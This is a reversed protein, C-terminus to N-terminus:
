TAEESTGLSRAENQRVTIVSEAEEGDFGIMVAQQSENPEDLSDGAAGVEGLLRQRARSDAVANVVEDFNREPAVLEGPSLLFPISDRGPIGGEAIGGDQAGQVQAIQEGGFAVAAAAGAIGLAQGVIPITSFGNFINMASEATKITINAIAAAKGIGKLTSNNSRQLQQLEGTAKQTGKVEETRLFERLKAQTTGFKKEEALFLANAKQQRQLDALLAAEKMEAETQIQASLKEQNKEVFEDQQEETLAQFEENSALLAEQKAKRAEAEAAEFEAKKAQLEEQRRQEEDVLKETTNQAGEVAINGAQTVKEEVEEPDPSYADTFSKGISKIDAAADSVGTKLVNTIESISSKIGSVDAIFVSLLLKAFPKVLNTLAEFAVGFVRVIADFSNTVVGVLGPLLVLLLGIGTAGVLGRVSLATTRIFVAAKKFALSLLGLGKGVIPFVNSTALLGARFQIIAIGTVALATVLGALAASVGIIVATFKVLGENKAFTAFLESLNDVVFQVAPGFQNGLVILAASLSSEFRVLSNALSENSVKFADAFTKAAKQENGLEKVTESFSGAQAGTLAFAIGQAEVSGFLKTVSDKTFGQAQSLDKLFQELGKSRLATANFEVGLRKAEAAAAATPAAVGAFVAKLGTFASNTRVGATTVASVAGLVEDLSVGFAEASSGVLGFGSSLEEITTKGFKQATFFKAAVNNAEDASLQYANLASTIGDTAVGVDTLGAVALQASVRVVDVAGAADVGASVTDFLAKNVKDIDVPVETALALASKRMEDFGKELGQAGFSTEDLLTKVGRLSNDFKAFQAVSVGIGASLGAFAVGSIKAVSALQKELDKTQGKINDLEERFQKSSAGIKIILSSDAM